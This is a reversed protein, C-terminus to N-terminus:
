FIAKEIKNSFKQVELLFKRPKWEPYDKGVRYTLLLLDSPYGNVNLLNVGYLSNSALLKHSLLWAEFEQLDKKDQSTQNEGYNDNAKTIAGIYRKLQYDNLLLMHSILNQYTDFLIKQQAWYAKPTFSNIGKSIKISDDRWTEYSSEAYRWARQETRWSANPARMENLQIAMEAEFDQRFQKAFMDAVNFVVSPNSIVSKRWGQRYEEENEREGRNRAIHLDSNSKLLNGLSLPEFGNLYLPMKAADRARQEAMQTIQENTYITFTTLAFAVVSVFVAGTTIITKKMSITKNKIKWVIANLFLHTLEGV